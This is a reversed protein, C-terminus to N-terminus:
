PNELNIFEGHLTPKVGTRAHYCVIMMNVCRIVGPVTPPPMHFEGSFASTGPGGYSWERDNILVPQYLPDTPKSVTEVPEVPEDGRTEPDEDEWHNHDSVWQTYDTVWQEHAAVWQDWEEPFFVEQWQCEYTSRKGTAPKEPEEGRTGPDEAEWADHATKWIHWANNALEWDYPIGVRYKTGHVEGHVRFEYPRSYRDIMGYNPAGSWVNGDGVLPWRPQDIYDGGTLYRRHFVHTLSWPVDESEASWAELELDLKCDGIFGARDLPGDLQIQNMRTVTVDFYYKFRNMEGPWGQLSLVASQDTYYRMKDPFHQWKDKTVVWKEEEAVLTTDAESFDYADDMVVTYQHNWSIAYVQAPDTVSSHVGLYTPTTAPNTLENTETFISATAMWGNIPEYTLPDFTTSLVRRIEAKNAANTPNIQWGEYWVAQAEHGLHARDTAGDYLTPILDGDALPDGTDEDSPRLFPVYLYNYPTKERDTKRWRNGPCEPMPCCCGLDNAQQLTAIKM